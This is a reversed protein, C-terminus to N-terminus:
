GSRIEEALVAGTLGSDRGVAVPAGDVTAAPWDNEIAVLLGDFM